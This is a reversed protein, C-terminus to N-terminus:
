SGNTQVHNSSGNALSWNLELVNVGDMRPLLLKAKGMTTNIQYEEESILNDNTTEEEIAEKDM